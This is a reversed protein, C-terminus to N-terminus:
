RMEKDENNKLEEVALAQISAAAFFLEGMMM